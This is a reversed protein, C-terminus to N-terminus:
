GLKHVDRIRSTTIENFLPHKFVLYMGRGIYGPRPKIPPKEGFSGELEVDIPEPCFTPHGSITVHTDDDKVLKYHHHQTEIELATGDSLENLYFGEPNRSPQVAFDNGHSFNAQVM